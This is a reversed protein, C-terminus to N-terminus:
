FDLTGFELQCVTDAQSQRTHRQYKSQTVLANERQLKTIICTDIIYCGEDKIISEQDQHMYRYHHMVKDMIHHREKDRVM